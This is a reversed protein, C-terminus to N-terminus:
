LQGFVRNNQSTIQTGRIRRKQIRLPHSSERCHGSRRLAVRPKQSTREAHRSDNSDRIKKGIDPRAVNDDNVACVTFDNDTGRLLIDVAVTPVTRIKQAPFTRQFAQTM